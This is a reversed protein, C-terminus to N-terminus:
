EVARCQLVVVRGQAVQWRPVQRDQVVEEVKGQAVLKDLVLKGPAALM